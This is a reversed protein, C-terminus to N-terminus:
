DDNREISKVEHILKGIVGINDTSQGRELREKDYLIGYMMTRQAAPVKKIDDITISQLIKDQLGALIEPRNNIYDDINRKELGYRALIRTVTSREVDVVKAIDEHRAKPNSGLELIKQREKDTIRARPKRTKRTIQVEVEKGM